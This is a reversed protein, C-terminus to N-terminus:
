AQPAQFNSRGDVLGRTGLAAACGASAAGGRWLWSAGVGPLRALSGGAPRPTVAASRARLQGSGDVGRCRSWGKSGM